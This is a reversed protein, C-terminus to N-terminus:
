QLSVLGGSTSMRGTDVLSEIARLVHQRRTDRKGEAQDYPIQNVVNDILASTTIEGSLAILDEAVRLVLRQKDGKPMARQPAGGEGQAVVCSSITDGDEDEGIAVTTLSFGFAAGDEGDKLKTVSACRKDDARSIEIEVDAAARLGSWGRAGRSADKGSHHVLIVLAGTAKHIARCHALARGVDEGSNENAGPMVQAFTDVVIVEVQGFAKIAVALDKVDTRELLNPADPIVGIDLEPVGHHECYAALRNRFGGVGEACVYVARCKRTRLGRWEVGRVVAGVLDLLWFTKGSGSEGFVVGLAAQPLLGKVIWSPRRRQLFEAVPQVRFRAPAKSAPVSSAGAAASVDDFDADTALAANIHAGNERALKVLSRATVLKGKVSGFSDWRRQLLEEGPYKSGKASWQDWWAFGDGETEHHLAMGVHLWEDHPMDPDLVDLAEAIQASSLGVRPEMLMLDDFCPTADGEALRRGFRAACAQRVAPSVEAVVNEAGLLDTVDLRNGTFTVFGKTSFVEFGFGEGRTAKSNGLNGRMFARVGEGSPSYEAYTGGVLTVVDPHVGGDVMCRDFDLAVIGFEPMLALGVGDFGRRAAAARAADFTTLQARDEARGQVGHRRGGSAYYPVKRAKSEGDHHEYRWTLWGPLKRLAEPCEVAALHPKITAVASM